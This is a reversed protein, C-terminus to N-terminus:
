TSCNKEQLDDASSPETEIEMDVPHKEGINSLLPLTLDAPPALPPSLPLLVNLSPISPSPPSNGAPANLLTSSPKVPQMPVDQAKLSPTDLAVSPAKLSTEVQAQKPVQVAKRKITYKDGEDIDPLKYVQPVFNNMDFVLKENNAKKHDAKRASNEDILQFIYLHTFM